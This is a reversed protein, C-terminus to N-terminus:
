SRKRTGARSREAKLTGKRQLYERLARRVTESEAVGDREKLTKLADALDADILFNYLKRAVM